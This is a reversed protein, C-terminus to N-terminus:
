PYIGRLRTAEAVKNVALVYAALRMNVKKDLSISLVEKFSREIIDRLKLNVERESWFFASLGQVWEFYSVVVGGANALIDPVVFVGNSYLIKDAEPTTPGNAAEIIIKAKIKDANKETIQNELAAPVLITAPIKLLEENTVSDTNKFGKVSGTERKHKSVECPNLGNSNYIGGQSDSVAVIKLGNEFLLKAVVSGANGFGQIAVTCDDIDLKLHKIADLCVFMCGRGTADERGYSGGIAVPKGTVVEPVAFGVNMSYTDMIWAMVQPNTYVDPAPIDKDPGIMIIIESTYRRTLREIENINMKKPNCAVGGKAGGYPINVVATKWTMWMALARVEDLTVDPHYRIGGKGPGRTDNHHVRYGTFVEISGDDMKVPFSVILSRKCHRLKKHIGPDLNILEAVEDLQQRAIDFPTKQTAM